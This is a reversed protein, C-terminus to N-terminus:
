GYNIALHRRRTVILLQFLSQGRQSSGGLADAAGALVAAGRPVRARLEVVGLQRLCPTNTVFSRLVHCMSLISVCFM